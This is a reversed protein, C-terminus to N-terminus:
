KDMYVIGKIVKGDRVNQFANEIEDFNWEHTILTDSLRKDEKLIRCVIEYAKEEKPEFTITKYGDAVNYGNEAVGYFAATGTDKLMPIGDKFIDANGSAEFVYDAIRECKIKEWEESGDIYAEDAGLKLAPLLREKRRGLCVVRKAGFYKAFYVLTYGAIGTGTVLVTSGSIDRLSMVCSATESLSILLAADKDPLENFGNVVPTGDEVVGYEAFGGWKSYYGDKYHCGLANARTVRDGIKLNKVAKGVKIVKGISEHGVIVPFENTGFSSDIIYRDTTNCPVCMEIKVLAQNDKIHPIPIEEISVNGASKAVFAKM